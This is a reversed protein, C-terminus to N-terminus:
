AERLRNPILFHATDTPYPWKIKLEKTFIYDQHPEAHAHAHVALMKIKKKNNLYNHLIM